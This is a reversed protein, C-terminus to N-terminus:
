SVASSRSPANGDLDLATVQVYDAGQQFNEVRARNVVRIGRTRAAHRFLIPEFYIQNVRHPPEPTPWWTDAGGTASYRDKRAPIPIRTLEYGTARTRVAFDNPYDDPLGANRLERALGLRRFIEMSRSSIHNCKVSPAEGAPRQEIIVVDIGRWAPDLALSLGVPGAGV